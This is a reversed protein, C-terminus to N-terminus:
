PRVEKGLWEIHPSYPSQVEGTRYVLWVPWKSPGSQKRGPTIFNGRPLNIIRELRSDRLLDIRDDCGELFSSWVLWAVGDTALELAHRLMKAPLGHGYPPNTVIWDPQIEDPTLSLFDRQEVYEGDCVDPNADYCTVQDITRCYFERDISHSRLARAIHGEGACPELVHGAIDDGVLNLLAMTMWEPTYHRDFPDEDAPLDPVHLFLDGNRTM